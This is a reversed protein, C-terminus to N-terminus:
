DGPTYQFSGNGQPPVTALPFFGCKEGEAYHVIDFYLEILKSPYYLFCLGSWEPHIENTYVRITESPCIYFDEPFLFTPGGKTSNQLIWRSMDQFCNSRNKIVVYENYEVTKCCSGDDYEVSSPTGEYEIRVIYVPPLLQNEGEVIYSKRSVAIGEANYLVATDPIENNWIDGYGYNFNFGGTESNFEDTYVLVMQRPGLLCPLPLGQSSMGSYFETYYVPVASYYDPFTFTPLGKTENVLTWGRIDQWSDSENKIAVYEDPENKKYCANIDSGYTKQKTGQYQIRVISVPSITSNSRKEGIRVAWGNVNAAIIKVQYNNNGEYMEIIDSTIMGSNTVVKVPATSIDERHVIITFLVTEPDDGGAYWSICWEDGTISFSLTKEGNAGTAQLLESWNDELDVMSILDAPASPTQEQLQGTNQGGTSSSATSPLAVGAISPRCSLTVFSLLVCLIVPSIWDIRNRIKM